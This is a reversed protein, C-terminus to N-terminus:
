LVSLRHGTFHCYATSGYTMARATGDNTIARVHVVDGAALKAISSTNMSMANTSTSGLNNYINYALDVTTTENRIIMVVYSNATLGTWTITSALFYLGDVPATFKNTAFNNGTDYSEQDYTLITWGTPLNAASNLYGKFATNIGANDRELADIRKTIDMVMQDSDYPSPYGFVLTDKLSPWRITHEWCMQDTYTLGTTSDVLTYKTNIVPYHTSNGHLSNHRVDVTRRRLTDTSITNACYTRLFTAEAKIVDSVTDLEPRYIPYTRTGFNGRSTSTNYGGSDGDASTHMGGKYKTTVQNIVDKTYDSDKVPSLLAGNAHSLTIASSPTTDGFDAIVITNTATSDQYFVTLPNGATNRSMWCIKRLEDIAPQKNVIYNAITTHYGVSNTVTIGSDVGITGDNLIDDMITDHYTSAWTQTTLFDFAKTLSSVCKLIYYKGSVKVDVIKGSFITYTGISDNYAIVVAQNNTPTVVSDVSIKICTITANDPFMMKKKIVIDTCFTKISTGALTCTQLATM